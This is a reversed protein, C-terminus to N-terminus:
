EDEDDSYPYSDLLEYGNNTKLWDTLWVEFPIYTEAKAKWFAFEDRLDSESVTIWKTLEGVKNPYNFLRERIVELRRGYIWLSM